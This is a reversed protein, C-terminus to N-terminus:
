EAVLQWYEALAVAAAAAPSEAALLTQLHM